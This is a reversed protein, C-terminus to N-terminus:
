ERVKAALRLLPKSPPLAVKAKLNQINEFAVSHFSVSIL